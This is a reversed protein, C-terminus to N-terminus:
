IRKRRFALILTACTGLLWTSPEPIAVVPALRMHYGGQNVSGWLADTPRADSISFTTPLPSDVSPIVWEQSAVVLWEAGANLDKTNYGWIYAQTGAAFPSDNSLLNATQIFQQDVLDYDAGQLVIWSAAWQDPTATTPDFGPAFTGLEFRISQGSSEFTTIGDAMFNLAFAESAWAIQTSKQQDPPTLNQAFVSGTLTTLAIALAPIIQYLTM